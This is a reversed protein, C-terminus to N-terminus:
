EKDRNRPAREAPPPEGEAVRQRGSREKNESEYLARMIAQRAWTSADLYEATSAKNVRRRDEVSLRIQLFETKPKAPQLSKKGPPKM